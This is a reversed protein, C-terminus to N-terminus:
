LFNIGNTTYNGWIAKVMRDRGHIDQKLRVESFGKKQLLAVVEAGFISHIEFFLQGKTKLTLVAYDVIKEYFLLPQHNPVFLAMHPEFDLVHHAIESQEQTPIYPPNSVICDWKQTSFNSLDLIDGGLFQVNSHLDAKNKNAVQLAEESKDMGFVKAKKLELDLSIAICGRGTGMDLISIEQDSTKYTEIVWEVLEETEGRPILVAPSVFYKRGYFWEEQLVYQLPENDAVRKGIKQVEWVLEEPIEWQRLDSRKRPSIGTLTEIVIHLM